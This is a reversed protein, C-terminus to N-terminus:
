QRFLFNLDAENCLLSYQQFRRCSGKTMIPGFGKSVSNPMWWLNSLQPWSKWLTMTVWCTPRNSIGPHWIFSIAMTKGCTGKPKSYALHNPWLANDFNLLKQPKESFSMKRGLESFLNKFVKKEFARMGLHNWLFPRFWSCIAVFIGSKWIRFFSMFLNLWKLTIWTQLTPGSRAAVKKLSVDM